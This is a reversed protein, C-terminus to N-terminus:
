AMRHLGMAPMVTLPPVRDALPLAPAEAKTGAVLEVQVKPPLAREVTEALSWNLLGPAVKCTASAMTPLVTSVRM